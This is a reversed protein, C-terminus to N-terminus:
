NDTTQRQKSTSTALAEGAETLFSLSFHPWQQREKNLGRNECCGNRERHGSQALICLESLWPPCGDTINSFVDLCLGQGRPLVCPLSRRIRNTNNAKGVSPDMRGEWNSVFKSFTFITSFRFSFFM